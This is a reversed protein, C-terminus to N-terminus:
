HPDEPIFKNDQTAASCASQDIAGPNGAMAAAQADALVAEQADITNLSLAQLQGDIQTLCAASLKDLDPTGDSIGVVDAPRSIPRGATQQGTETTPQNLATWAVPFM